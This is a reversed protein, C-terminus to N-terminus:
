MSTTSEYLFVRICEQPRGNDDRCLFDAFHSCKADAVVISEHVSVAGARARSLQLQDDVKRRVHKSVLAATRQCTSKLTDESSHPAEPRPSHFPRHALRCRRIGASFIRSRSRARTLTISYFNPTLPFNNNMCRPHSSNNNRHMTNINAAM